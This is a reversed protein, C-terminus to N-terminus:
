TSGRLRDQASLAKLVNLSAESHGNPGRGLVGESIRLAARRFRNEDMDCRFLVGDTKRIHVDFSCEPMTDLAEDIV